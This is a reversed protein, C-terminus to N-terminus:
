TPPLLNVPHEHLCSMSCLPKAGVRRPWAMTSSWECAVSARQAWGGGDWPRVGQLFLCLLQPESNAVGGVISPLCAARLSRLDHNPLKISLYVTFSAAGGAWAAGGLPASMKVARCRSPDGSCHSCLGDIPRKTIISLLLSTLPLFLQVGSTVALFRFHSNIGGALSDQLFPTPM